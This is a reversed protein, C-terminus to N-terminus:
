VGEKRKTMSLKLLESVLFRNIKLKFPMANYKRAGLTPIRGYLM